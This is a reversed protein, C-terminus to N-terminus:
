VSNLSTMAQCSAACARCVTECEGMEKIAACSTACAECVEACLACYKQSFASNSLQLDVSTQCVQACNLMLGFHKREVQEGGAELCQTMASRLCTQYCKTCADICSQMSQSM